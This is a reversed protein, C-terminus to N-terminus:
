DKHSITGFTVLLVLSKQFGQSQRIKNKGRFVVTDGRRAQEFYHLHCWEMIMIRNTTQALSAPPILFKDFM